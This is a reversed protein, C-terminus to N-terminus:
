AYRTLPTTARVDVTAGYGHAVPVTDWLGRASIPLTPQTDALNVSVLGVKM